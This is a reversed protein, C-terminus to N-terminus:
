ARLLREYVDVYRAVVLDRNFMREVRLRAAGGIERRLPENKLLGM